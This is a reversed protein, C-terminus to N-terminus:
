RSEVGERNMREKVGSEPPASERRSRRYTRLIAMVDPTFSVENYECRIVETQDVSSAAEAKLAAEAAICCEKLTPFVKFSTNEISRNANREIFTYGTHMSANSAAPMKGIATPIGAYKDPKRLTLAKV